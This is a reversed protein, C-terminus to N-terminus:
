KLAEVIASCTDIEIQVAAKAMEDGGAGSLAANAADLAKQANALDLQDLPVAEEALIQASSDANVTITGSSVFYKHAEGDKFVTMAGPRLVAIIPVHQPLISFNGSGSPVDVQTVNDCNFFSKTPSGFTLSLGSTAPAADAYKRIASLVVPSFNNLRGCQRILSLAM